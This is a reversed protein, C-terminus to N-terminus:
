EEVNGSIGNHGRSQDVAFLVGHIKCDGASVMVERKLFEATMDGTRVRLARRIKKKVRVHPVFTM